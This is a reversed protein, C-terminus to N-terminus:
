PIEGRSAILEESLEHLQELAYAYSRLRQEWEAREMRQLDAWEDTAKELNAEMRAIRRGVLSLVRNWAEDRTKRPPSSPVELARQADVASPSSAGNIIVRRLPNM